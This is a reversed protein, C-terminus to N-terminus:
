AVIHFSKNSPPRTNLLAAHEGTAVIANGNILAISPDVGPLNHSRRVEATYNDAWEKAQALPDQGDPQNPLVVWAGFQVSKM